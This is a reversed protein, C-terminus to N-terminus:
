VIERMHCTLYQRLGNQVTGGKRSHLRLYDAQHSIDPRARALNLCDRFDIVKDKGNTKAIITNVM